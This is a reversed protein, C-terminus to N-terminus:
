PASTPLRSALQKLDARLAAFDARYASPAARVVVDRAAGAIVPETWERRLIERLRRKLRNRDVASHQYRPVIIGIRGERRLSALTRVELAGTRIRKGERRVTEFDAARTLWQPSAV